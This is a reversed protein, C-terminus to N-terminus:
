SGASIHLPAYKESHGYENSATITYNGGNNFCLNRLELISYIVEGNDHTYNKTHPPLDGGVVGWHLCM